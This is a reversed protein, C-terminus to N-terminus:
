HVTVTRTTQTNVSTVRAASSNSTDGMDYFASASHDAADVLNGFQVAAFARFIQSATYGNVIVQSWPNSAAGANDLLAGAQTGSYGASLDISWVLGGVSSLGAGTEQSSLKVKNDAGLAGLFAALAKGVSNAATLASALTNWIAGAVASLFTSSGALLTIPDQGTSYAGVTTTLSFSFSSLTRGSAAWVATAAAIASLDQLDSVRKGDLVFGDIPLKGAVTAVTAAVTINVVDGPSYGSPITGTVKYRGTDLNTVALVFSADDQGNHNATAVPLSDANQAALTTPNSTTFESFYADGPRYSM